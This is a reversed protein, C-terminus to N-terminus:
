SESAITNLGSVNRKFEVYTAAFYMLYVIGFLLLSVGLYMWAPDEANAYIAFKGSLFGSIEVSLLLATVFPFIYYWALQRLIVGNVERERMGLKRLMSYRYRYRAADSLQQVALVTLAVCLFVLGIYFLPFILTSLLVRMQQVDEVRVFALSDHSYIQDTGFGFDFLLEGTENYLEWPIRENISQLLEEELGGAVKENGAAGEVALEGDTQAIMVAFYPTMNWVAEDPVVFVYDAGNHGNQEFGETYIGGCTYAKGNISIHRQSYEEVWDHMRQKAHILYSDQALVMPEYGLMERLRNYDGLRMYTDYQFYCRYDLYDGVGLKEKLFTNMDSSQTRYMRYVLIDKLDTRARIIELERAFDAEPNEDYVAIDFPWKEDAQTDQYRNLMVGCTCGVLAASFLITLTGLTFQMTKIKSSLQRLIFINAGKCVSKEGKRLYGVLFAALGMYLLYIAAFLGIIMPWVNLANFLEGYLMVGFVAMYALSAPLMWKKGSSNGNKLQENQKDLYMMDHIHMKKFRRKNRLLALVFAMLYVGATLLFTWINIELHLAYDETVVAYILSVLVQQLFLGPLLGIVFAVAGLLMNEKLFLNAVQKKRFGLLLYTAFERSRKEALFKVMYHVLWIMIMMVFFSAIGIMAAIMAVESCLAQISPSFILSHFAFMLATILVMTLLYVLYDKMSRKANRLALKNLM